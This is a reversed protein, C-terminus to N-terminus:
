SQRIGASAGSTGLHTRLFALTRKWALDQAAEDFAEPRADNFLAHGADCFHAEVNAGAERLRDVLAQADAEPVSPDRKGFHALLPIRVANPDIQVKPHIGYFNVAAALVDGHREAAHMALQGGMCFGMAAVQKPTVEPMSLLHEAAGRLEKGAREIDLAMLLKGPRIPVRRERETISIPPL